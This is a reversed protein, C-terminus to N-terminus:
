RAPIFMSFKRAPRLSPRDFADPSEESSKTIATSLDHFELSTVIGARIGMELLPQLITQVAIFVAKGEADKLL